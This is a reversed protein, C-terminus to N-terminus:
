IRGQERLKAVVDPGFKFVLKKEPVSEMMHTTYQYRITRAFNDYSLGAKKERRMGWREAIIDHEVLRFVGEHKDEWRILSPNSEPDELLDLLYEWVKRGREKGRSKTSKALGLQQSVLKKKIPPSM